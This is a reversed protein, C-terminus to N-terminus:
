LKLALAARSLLYLGLIQFETATTDRFMVVAEASTTSAALSDLPKQRQQQVFLFCLSFCVLFHTGCTSQLLALALM